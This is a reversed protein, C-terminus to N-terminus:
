AEGRAKKLAARAADMAGERTEFEDTTRLCLGGLQECSQLLMRLAEYLDPAAAILHANDIEDDGGSRSAHVKAIVTRAIVETYQFGDGGIRSKHVKWPGPTWKPETM